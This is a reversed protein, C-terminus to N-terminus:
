KTLGAIRLTEQARAVAENAFRTIAAQGEATNLGPIPLVDAEITDVIIENGGFIRKLRAVM